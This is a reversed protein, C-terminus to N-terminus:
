GCTLNIKKIKPNEIVDKSRQVTNVLIEDPNCYLFWPNYKSKAMANNTCGIVWPTEGGETSAILLDNENFDLDEM